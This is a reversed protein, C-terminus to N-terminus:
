ASLPFESFAPKQMQQKEFAKLGFYDAYWIHMNKTAYGSSRWGSYAMCQGVYQSYSTESISMSTLYFRILLGEQYVFVAKILYCPLYVGEGNQDRLTKASFQFWLM